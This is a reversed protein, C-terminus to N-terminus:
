AWFAPWVTPCYARPGGVGGCVCGCALARISFLGPARRHGSQPERVLVNRRRGDPCPLAQAAETEIRPGAHQSDITGGPTEEAYPARDPLLQECRVGAHEIQDLQMKRGLVITGVSDACQPGGRRSTIDDHPMLIIVEIKTRSEASLFTDRRLLSSFSHRGTMQHCQMACFPRGRPRRSFGAGGFAQSM